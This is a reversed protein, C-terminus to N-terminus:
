NRPGFPAILRAYREDRSAPSFDLVFRGRVGGAELARHARSADTPEIVEGVQPRLQGAEVAAALQRLSGPIDPNQYFGFYRYEIGRPAPDPLPRTGREGIARLSSYVGGDAIADLAAVGILAADALADVGGPVQRLVDAIFGPGRRAILDAGLQRVFPEDAESSDAIVRAGVLKSLQIFYGGFAGTSGTVAVTSGPGLGLVHIGWLATLGNMPITAAEILSVNQPAKVVREAPVVVYEAYGGSQPRDPIIVAMVRDGPQFETDAGGGVQDLIGGVDMGPVYPAPIGRFDVDGIRVLTDAPNVAAGHVRIRVEGPGATPIPLGLETLVDPPGPTYFGISKM